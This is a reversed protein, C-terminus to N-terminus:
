ILRFNKVKVRMSVLIEGAEEGSSTYIQESGDMSIDSSDSAYGTADDCSDPILNIVGTLEDEISQRLADSQNNEGVDTHRRNYDMDERAGTQSVPVPDPHPYGMVHEVSQIM